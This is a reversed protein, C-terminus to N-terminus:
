QKRVAITANKMIRVQISTINQKLTEYFVM